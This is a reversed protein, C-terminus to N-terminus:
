LRIEFLSFSGNKYHAPLDGADDIATIGLYTFGCSIYYNNLRENGSGTDMRIFTQGNAKAYDKAWGVIAPTYGRGRFLPHTAIRHIYIAPDQDKEKWIYPDNFTLTFVCVIQDDEVINYQRNERIATEVIAREFGRWHKIAVTKQYATADEYRQLITDVDQPASNIIKM